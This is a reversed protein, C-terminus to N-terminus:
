VNTTITELSREQVYLEKCKKCLTLEDGATWNDWVSGVQDEFCRQCWYGDM